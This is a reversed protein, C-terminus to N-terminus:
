KILLRKKWRTSKQLNQNNSNAQLHSFPLNSSSLAPLYEKMQKDISQCIHVIWKEHKSHLVFKLQPFKVSLLMHYRFAYNIKHNTESMWVDLDVFFICLSYWYTKKVKRKIEGQSVLFLLSIKIPEPISTFPSHAELQM